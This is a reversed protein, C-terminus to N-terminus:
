INKFDLLWYSQDRYAAKILQLGVIHGTETFTETIMKTSM